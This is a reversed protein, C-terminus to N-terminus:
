KPEEVPPPPDKQMAPPVPAASDMPLVAWDQWGLGYECKMCRLHLHPTDIACKDTVVYRTQAGTAGCKPCVIGPTYNEM